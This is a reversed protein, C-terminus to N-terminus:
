LPYLITENGTGGSFPKPGRVKVLQKNIADNAFLKNLYSAVDMLSVYTFKANHLRAYIQGRYLTHGSLNMVRKVQRITALVQKSPTRSPRTDFETCLTTEM